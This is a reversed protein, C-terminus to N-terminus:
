HGVETRDFLQSGHYAAWHVVYLDLRHELDLRCCDFISEFTCVEEIRRVDKLFAYRPQKYGTSNYIAVESDCIIKCRLQSVTTGEEERSLAGILRNFSEFVREAPPHIRLAKKQREHYHEEVILRIDLPIYPDAGIEKFSYRSDNDDMTNGYLVIKQVKTIESGRNTDIFM